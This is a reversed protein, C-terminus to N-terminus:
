QPPAVIVGRLGAKDISSQVFGSTKLDEVFQWVWNKAAVETKPMVLAYPVTAYRGDLVRAGPLETITYLQPKNASFVDAKGSKLTELAAAYDPSRVLVANKLSRSLMLDPGGKAQVVVRIGPQDVEAMTKIPSGAPVLYGVEAEMLPAFEMHAARAPDYALFAISWQGSTASEALANATNYSVTELPVGVRRALEGAVDIAVGKFEGTAPDKIVQLPNTPIIGVRLKGTPALVMQVAASPPITQTACGVLISGAILIFLMASSRM